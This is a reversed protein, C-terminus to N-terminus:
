DIEIGNRFDLREILRDIESKQELVYSTQAKKDLQKRYQKLATEIDVLERPDEIEIRGTGMNGGTRRTYLKM